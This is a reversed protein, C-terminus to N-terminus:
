LEGPMSRAASAMVASPVGSGRSTFWQCSSIYPGGVSGTDASTCAASRTCVSERRGTAAANSSLCMIAGAISAIGMGPWVAPAM